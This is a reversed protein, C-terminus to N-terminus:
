ELKNDLVIQAEEVVVQVVNASGAQHMQRIKQILALIPDNSAGFIKLILKEIDNLSMIFRRSFLITMIVPALEPMPRSLANSKACSPATTM